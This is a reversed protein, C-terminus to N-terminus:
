QISYVSGISTECLISNRRIQYPHQFIVKASAQPVLCGYMPEIRMFHDDSKFKYEMASNSDNLLTLIKCTNSKPETTIRLRPYSVNFIVPFKFSKNCSRVFVMLDVNDVVTSSKAESCNAPVTAVVTIPVKGNKPIEMFRRDLKFLNADTGVFELEVPCNVDSKNILHFTKTDSSPFAFDIVIRDNLQDTVILPDM